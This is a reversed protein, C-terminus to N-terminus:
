GQRCSAHLAPCVEARGAPAARTRRHPVAQMVVAEREIRQLDLLQIDSVPRGSRQNTIHRIGVGEALRFEEAEVPASRRQRVKPFRGDESSSILILIADVNNFLITNKRWSLHRLKLYDKGM